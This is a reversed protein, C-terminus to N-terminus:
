KLAIFLPNVLENHSVKQGTKRLYDLLNKKLRSNNAAILENATHSGDPKDFYYRMLHRCGFIKFSFIYTHTVRRALVAGLCDFCARTIYCQCLACITTPMNPMQANPFSIYSDVSCVALILAPFPVLQQRLNHVEKWM